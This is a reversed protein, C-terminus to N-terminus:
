WSASRRPASAPAKLLRFRLLFARMVSASPKPSDAPICCFQSQSLIGNLLGVLRDKTDASADLHHIHGQAACQVLMNGCELGVLVGIVGGVFGHRLPFGEKGLQVAAAKENVAVVVLSHVFQSLPQPHDKARGSITDHLGEAMFGQRDQADLEMGLPHTKGHQLRVCHVRQGNEFPERGKTM